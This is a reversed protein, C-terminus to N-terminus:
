IHIYTHIYTHLYTHMCAHMCAKKGTFICTCLHMNKAPAEWLTQWLLWGLVNARPLLQLPQMISFHNDIYHGFNHWTCILCWSCSCLDWGRREFTNKTDRSAEPEARFTLSMAQGTGEAFSMRCSGSLTTREQHPQWWDIIIMNVDM